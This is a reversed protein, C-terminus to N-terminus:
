DDKGNFAKGGGKLYFVLCLVVVFVTLYGEIGDYKLMEISGTIGCFWVFVMLLFFLLKM